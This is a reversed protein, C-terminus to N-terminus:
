SATKNKLLVIGGAVILLFVLALIALQVVSKM